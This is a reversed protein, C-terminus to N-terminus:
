RIVERKKSRHMSCNVVPLGNIRWTDPSNIFSVPLTAISIHNGAYCYTNVTRESYISLLKCDKKAKAHEPKDPMKDAWKKV